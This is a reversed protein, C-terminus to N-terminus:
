QDHDRRQRQVSMRAGTRQLHELKPIEPAFRRVIREHREESQEDRPRKAQQEAGCLKANPSFSWGMFM